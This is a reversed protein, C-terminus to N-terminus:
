YAAADSERSAALASTEATMEGEALHHPESDGASAQEAQVLWRSYWRASHRAAFELSGPEDFFHGASPVVLFERRCRMHDYAQRNPGLHDEDREGVIFLTAASTGELPVAGALDPRGSRVVVARVIRGLRDAARIAPAATPGSSLYGIPLGILRPEERIWHTLGVIRQSLLKVNQRLTVLRDEGHTLLNAFLTAFGASRIARAVYADRSNNRQGAGIPFPVLVVGEVSDPVVLDAALHAKGCVIELRDHTLKVSATSEALQM